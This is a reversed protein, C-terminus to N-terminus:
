IIKIRQKAAKAPHKKYQKNNNNKQTYSQPKTPNNASIQKEPNKIYKM